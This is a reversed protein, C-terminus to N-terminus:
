GNNNATYLAIQQYFSFGSSVEYCYTDQRRIAKMFKDIWINLLRICYFYLVFDVITDSDLCKIAKYLLFIPLLRRNHWLRSIWNPCKPMTMFTHSDRWLLWPGRKSLDWCLYTIVHGTFSSIFNRIWEWVEATCGNFNQFPYTIYEGQM